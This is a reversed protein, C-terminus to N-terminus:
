ERNNKLLVYFYILFIFAPFVVFTLALTTTNSSYIIAIISSLAYIAFITRLNLKKSRLALLENYFLEYLTIIVSNLFIITAIEKKDFIFLYLETLIVASLVSVIITEYLLKKHRKSNKRYSTILIRGFAIGICALFDFYVLSSYVEPIIDPNYILILWTIFSIYLYDLSPISSMVIPLTISFVKKNHHPLLYQMFGIHLIKSLLNTYLLTSVLLSIYYGVLLLIPQYVGLDFLHFMVYNISLLLITSSIHIKTITNNIKQNVLFERSITNNIILFTLPLSLIIYLLSVKVNAINIYFFLMLLIALFFLLLMSALNYIYRKIFFLIKKDKKIIDFNTIVINKVYQSILILLATATISAVGGSILVSSNKDNSLFFLNSLVPLLNFWLYVLYYLANKIFLKNELM